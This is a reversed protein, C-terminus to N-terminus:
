VTKEGNNEERVVQGDETLTITQKNDVSYVEEVDSLEEFSTTFSTMIDPCYWRAGNMIARAYLMNRPYNKWNVGNVIGAKAADKITFQSEGLLIEKDDKIRNFVITCETDDHKKITYDYKNSKKILSGITNATIGLRGGVFYFSNLSQMPSLGLERGALIKIYGQSASKIDPFVGSDAFIKGLEMGQSIMLQNEEM